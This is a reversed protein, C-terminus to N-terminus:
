LNAGAVASALLVGRFASILPAFVPIALLLRFGNASRCCNRGVEGWEWVVLGDALSSENFFRLSFRGLPQFATRTFLHRPANM